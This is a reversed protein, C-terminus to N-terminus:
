TTTTSSSTTTTSSSTTTTSSSTTTTTTTTSTTTAVTGTVVYEVQVALGSLNSASANKTLQLELVDDERLYTNQDPTIEYVTDATLATDYNTNDATALLNDIQTMNALQVQWYNTTDVAVTTDVVLSVKTIKVESPAVMMFYNGSSSIAGLNHFAVKKEDSTDSAAFGPYYDEFTRKPKVPM